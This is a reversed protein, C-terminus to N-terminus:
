KKSISNMIKQFNFASENISAFCVKQNSKTKNKIIELNSNFLAGENNNNVAKRELSTSQRHKSETTTTKNNKNTNNFFKDKVEILYKKLNMLDDKNEESKAFFSFALIGQKLNNAFSFINNDIILINNKNFCSNELDTSALVEFISLDKIFANDYAEICFSRDLVLIFYKDIKLQKLLTTAYKEKSATFLILNYEESVSELFQTLNNQVNVYAFYEQNFSVKCDFKRNYSDKPSCKESHLLTEDLDLVLLPKFSRKDNTTNKPYILEKLTQAAKQQKSHTKNAEKNNDGERILTKVKELLKSKIFEVQHSYAKSSTFIGQLKSIIKMNNKVYEDYENDGGQNINYGRFFSNLYIDLLLRIRQFRKSKMQLGILRAEEEEQHKKAIIGFYYKFGEVLYNNFWKPEENFLSLIYNLSQQVVEESACKTSNTNLFELQDLASNLFFRDLKCSAEDESNYRRHEKIIRPNKFHLSKSRQKTPKASDDKALKKEISKSEKRELLAQSSNRVKQNQPNPIRTNM